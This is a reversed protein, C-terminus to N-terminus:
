VGQAHALRAPGQGGACGAVDLWHPMSRTHEVPMYAAEICAKGHRAHRCLVSCAPRVSHSYRSAQMRAADSGPFVQLQPTAYCPMAHCPPRKLLLCRRLKAGRRGKYRATTASPQRARRRARRRRCPRIPRCTHRPPVRTVLCAHMCVSDECHRVPQMPERPKFRAPTGASVTVDWRQCHQEASCLASIM